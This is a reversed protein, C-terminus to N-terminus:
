VFLHVTGVLLLECDCYARAGGPLSMLTSYLRFPGRHKESARQNGHVLSNERKELRLM